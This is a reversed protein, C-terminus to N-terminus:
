NIGFDQLLTFNYHAYAKDKSKEKNGSIKGINAFSNGKPWSKGFMPIKALNSLTQPNTWQSTAKKEGFDAFIKGFNPSNVTKPFGLFDFHRTQNFLCGM